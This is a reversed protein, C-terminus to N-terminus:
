RYHYDNGGRALFESVRLLYDGDTKANFELLPDGGVSERARGLEVGESDTLVLLADMRSAIREAFCDIFMREGAKAIIKFYQAKSSVVRGNMVSDPSIVPAKSPDNAEGPVQMEERDSVSFILSSSVGYRGGFCVEYNGTRVDAAATVKFRTGDILEGKIGPHNFILSGPTDLEAGTLSVEVSSGAQIGAPFITDLRATPLQAGVPENLGIFTVLLVLWVRGLVAMDM